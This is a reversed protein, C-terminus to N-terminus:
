QYDKGIIITIDVKSSSSQSKSIDGAGIVDKMNKVLIDSVEKKNIITTKATTNTSGTRTVKFGAGELQSQAKQLKSSEGSGNLIEIKLDSKKTSVGTTTPQTQNSTTNETPQEEGEQPEEIDRDFFLEQVLKKTENKDGKM